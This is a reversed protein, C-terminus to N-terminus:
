DNLQSVKWQQITDGSLGLWVQIEDIRKETKNKCKTLSFSDPSKDIMTCANRLKERVARCMVYWVTKKKLLGIVEGEDDMFYLVEGEYQYGQRIEKMRRELDTMKLVEYTVPSLGLARAIEIGVHPPVAGTSSEETPELDCRTWTIFKLEPGALYSLDEVHQHDPALIEFIATYRSWAMFRLLMEKKEEGMKDLSDIVTDCVERAIRFRPEGYKKIDDKTRFMMHVNKSGGCMVFKGGILRCSLHGAEGNAKKTAIIAKADEIPKSFYKKWALNDGSDRDDDDGLGGTFKKMAQLVCRVGAEPGGHIELFSNGRAVKQRIAKNSDYIADDPGRKTFVKVDIVEGELGDPLVGIPVDARVIKLHKQHSAWRLWSEAQEKDKRSVTVDLHLKQLHDLVEKSQDKGELEKAIEQVVKSELDSMSAAM